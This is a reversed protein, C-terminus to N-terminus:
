REKKLQKMKYLLAPMSIAVSIFVVLVTAIAAGEAGLRKILFIDLFINATGAFVSVVLNVKVNKLMALINGAPIRFTGSIFYNFSLIRFAALSDMYEAGWLIHIILPAFAILIISIALNVIELVKFLMKMKEKLWKYDLNNEAFYPYIFTIIGSPIFTLASPVLTAAKYSAVAQSDKIYVGILYVDLLYLIQSLANSMCCIISYKIIEKRQNRTLKNTACQIIEKYECFIIGQIISITYAIYRGIIVGAIGFLFAGLCSFIFYFFTNTNLIRAYKKNEKRCRLITCFYNFIYDVVPIFCMLAIYLETGDIAIPICKVYLLIMVALVVNIVLGFNMGYKFFLRKEEEPRKESGYQLVGSTMGLGSALLFFSIINNAYGFVGYETKTLFRVILINTFFSLVKNAVNTGLIHVAGKDIMWRIKGMLEQKKSSM